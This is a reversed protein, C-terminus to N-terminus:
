APITCTCGDSHLTSARTVTKQALLLCNQKLIGLADTVLRVHESQRHEAAAAGSVARQDRGIMAPQQDIASQARALEDQAELLASDSRPLEIAHEEGVLVAIV